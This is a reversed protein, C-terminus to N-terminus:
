HKAYIGHAEKRSFYTSLSCFISMTQTNVTICITKHPPQFSKQDSLEKSEHVEM